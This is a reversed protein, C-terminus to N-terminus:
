QRLEASSIPRFDGGHRSLGAAVGGGADDGRLGVGWRGVLDPGFGSDRTEM